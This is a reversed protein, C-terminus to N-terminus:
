EVILETGQRGTVVLHVDQDKGVSVNPIVFRTGGATVHVAYEGVPVTVPQANLEGEAAVKGNQAVLEFLCRQRFPQLFTTASSEQTRPTLIPVTPRRRWVRCFRGHRVQRSISASSTSRFTSGAPKSDASSTPRIINREQINRVPKSETPSLCSWSAARLRASTKRCSASRCGIPTQGQPKIDFIARRLGPKDISGFPVVLETDTCSRAKPSRHYRHGYVRLGIRTASPLRRIVGSLVRKAIVMKTTGDPMRGRM